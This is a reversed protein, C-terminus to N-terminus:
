NTMEIIHNKEKAMCKLWDLHYTLYLMYKVHIMIPSNLGKMVCFMFLQLMFINASHVSITNQIPWVHFIEDRINIM